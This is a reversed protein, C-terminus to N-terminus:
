FRKAIRPTECGFEARVTAIGDAHEEISSRTVDNDGAERILGERYYELAQTLAACAASTDGLERRAKALRMAAASAHLYDQSTVLSSLKHDLASVLEADAASVPTFPALALLLAAGITSFPKANKLM